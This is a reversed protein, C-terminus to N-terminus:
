PWAKYKVTDRVIHIEIAVFPIDVSLEERTYGQIRNMIKLKTDVM